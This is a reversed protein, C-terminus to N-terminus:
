HPAALRTTRYEMQVPNVGKGALLDILSGPGALHGAGVLVMVTQTGDLYQEIVPLWEANRDTFMLKGLPGIRRMSDDRLAALRAVDGERWAITRLARRSDYDADEEIADLIMQEQIGPEVKDFFSLQHQPSALGVNRRDGAKDMFHREIGIASRYGCRGDAASTIALAAMWPKMAQLKEMSLDSSQSWAQLATRTKESLLGSLRMGDSLQGSKQVQERMLRENAEGQPVETVIIKSEAFAQEYPTPLPYDSELMTHFSGCLWVVAKGRQVKWVMCRTSREPGHAESSSAAPLAPDRLRQWLLATGSLVILILGAIFVKM